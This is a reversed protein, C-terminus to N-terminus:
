DEGEFSSEADDITFGLEAPAISFGLEVKDVTFSLPKNLTYPPVVSGASWADLWSNGWSNGWASMDRVGNTASREPELM